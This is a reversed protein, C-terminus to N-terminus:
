QSQRPGWKGSYEWSLDRGRQLWPREKVSIESVAWTVCSFASGWICGPMNSWSVGSRWEAEGKGEATWFCPPAASYASELSMKVTSDLDGGSRETRGPIREPLVPCGSPSCTHVCHLGIPLYRSVDTRRCSLPVAWLKRVFWSLFLLFLM